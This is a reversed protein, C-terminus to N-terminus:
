VGEFHLPRRLAPAHLGEWLDVAGRPERRLLSALFDQRALAGQDISQKRPDRLDGLRVVLHRSPQRGRDHDRYQYATERPSGPVIMFAIEAVYTSPNLFYAGTGVIEESERLLGYRGSAAAGAQWQISRFPASGHGVTGAESPHESIM